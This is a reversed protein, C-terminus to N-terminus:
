LNGNDETVSKQLYVENTRTRLSGKANKIVLTWYFADTDGPRIQRHVLVARRPPGHRPFMSFLGYMQLIM